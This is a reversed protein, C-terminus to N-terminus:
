CYVSDGVAVRSSGSTVPSVLEESIILQPILKRTGRCLHSVLQMATRVATIGSTSLSTNTLSQNSSSNLSHDTSHYKRDWRRFTSFVYVQRLARLFVSERHLPVEDVPERREGSVVEHRATSEEGVLIEEALPVRPVKIALWEAYPRAAEPIKPGPSDITM